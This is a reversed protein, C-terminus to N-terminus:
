ALDLETYLDIAVETKHNFDSLQTELERIRGEISKLEKEVEKYSLKVEFSVLKGASKLTTRDGEFTNLSNLFAKRRNLNSLLYINKNNTGANAEAVALKINVLQDLKIEYLRKVDDFDLQAEEAKPRSNNKRMLGESKRISDELDEKIRLLQDLKITTTKTKDAM